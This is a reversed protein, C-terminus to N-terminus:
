NRVIRVLLTCSTALNYISREASELGIASWFSKVFDARFLSHQLIFCIVLITDITIPFLALDIKSRNDLLNIVWISAVHIKHPASLFFMLKGIAYFTSVFSLLALPVTLLQRLATM